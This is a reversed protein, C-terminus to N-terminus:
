ISKCGVAASRIMGSLGVLHGQAPLESSWVGGPLRQSASRGQVLFQGKSQVPKRIIERNKKETSVEKGKNDKM